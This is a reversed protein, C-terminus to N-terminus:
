ASRSRRRYPGIHNRDMRWRRYALAVVPPLCPLFIVWRAWWTGIGSLAAAFMPGIIVLISVVCVAAVKVLWRAFSRANPEFSWAPRPRFDFAPVLAKEIREKARKALDADFVEWRLVIRVGRGLLEAHHPQWCLREIENWRLSKEKCGYHSVYRVGDRGVHWTGRWLAYIAGALWLGFALFTGGLLAVYTWVSAASDAPALLWIAVGSAMGPSAFFGCIWWGQRRYRRGAPGESSLVIEDAHSDDAV